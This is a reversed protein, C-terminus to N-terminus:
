DTYPPTFQDSRWYPLISQPAERSGALFCKMGLWAIMAGNDVLLSKEPVFLEAGREECMIRCMEQLRENCAVGGGLVLQQKSAQSMGREAVEVLMAFVTEQLSYCLAAASAKKQRYLEVAKTYIGGFSVDMGKVVYPLPVYQKTTRAQEEIKPGGPFGLGIVRAFQDLFNGVGMDLTEGLISYCGAQLTLVQTNAGSVYLLVPETAGTSVKGIELHAVCHNVGLLPKNYRLALTRAATAGIRLCQGLGPGQAFSIVDIDQLTVNAESLAQNILPVAHEIHYDAVKGPILGGSRTTYQSLVNSVVSGKDTVIGVGFTHATSEIGLCLMCVLVVASYLFFVSLAPM